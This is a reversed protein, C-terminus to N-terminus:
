VAWRRGAEGRSRRAEPDRWLDSLCAAIEDPTHPTLVPHWSYLQKMVDDDLYCLVPKSMSLGEVVVSGFWGVGFEDIVVDAISYLPLLESRNFGYAHPGKLWIVSRGIGLREILRRAEAVDRSQGSDILVLAPRAAANSAMFRALGEFLRDNGKWQGAEVKRPSRDIMMRSPHFLIFDHHDVIRRIQTDPSSRASSDCRFMETDIMIPFYRPVIRAPEVGLRSAAVRFPSFPQSWLQEVSKIGRRQWGGGILAAGKSAIGRPRAIFRIPFPAVTLDWGTVYFIFPRDVFPAFRVGAGSVMVVDFSALENVLPSLGPWFRAGISQYRGKHIWDPYRHRLAPDESEPLQNIGADSDIFLHADIESAARLARAVAFFNNCTNGYLAVKM